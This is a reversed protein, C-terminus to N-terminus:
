RRGRKAALAPPLTLHEVYDYCRTDYSDDVDRRAETNVLALWRPERGEKARVVLGIRRLYDLLTVKHGSERVARSLDPYPSSLSRRNGWAHLQTHACVQAAEQALEHTTMLQLEDIAKQRYVSMDGLAVAPLALVGLLATMRIIPHYSM